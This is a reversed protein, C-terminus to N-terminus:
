YIFIEDFYLTELKKHPKLYLIQINNSTINKMDKRCLKPGLPKSPPWSPPSNTFIQNPQLHYKQFSFLFTHCKKHM